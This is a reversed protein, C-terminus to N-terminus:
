NEFILAYNNFREGSVEGGIGERDGIERWRYLGPMDNM